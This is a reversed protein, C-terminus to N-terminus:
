KTDYEPEVMLSSYALRMLCAQQITKGKHFLDESWYHKM